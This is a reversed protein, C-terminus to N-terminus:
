AGATKCTEEDLCYPGSWKGTMGVELGINAAYQSFEPWYREAWNGTTADYSTFDGIVIHAESPGRGWSENVVKVKDVTFIGNFRHDSGFLYLTMGPRVQDITLAGKNSHPHKVKTEETHAPVMRNLVTYFPFDLGVAEGTTSL